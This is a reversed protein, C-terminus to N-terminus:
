LKKKIFKEGLERSLKIKLETNLTITIKEELRIIVWWNNIKKPPWLQKSESAILINKILPHPKDLNVPGVLGGSKKEIGESFEKAVLYFDSEKNKIRLYLEQSLGQNKVRIISYIFKDLYPRRQHYYNVLNDKFEQLCWKDWKFERTILAIWEKHLLLYKTQWKKIEEENKISNIKCWDEIIKQEEKKNIKINEIIEDKILEIKVKELLGISSLKKLSIKESYEM